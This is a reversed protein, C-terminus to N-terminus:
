GVRRQFRRVGAAPTDQGGDQGGGQDGEAQGEDDDSFLDGFNRRLWKEAKAVAGPGTFRVSKDGDQIDVADVGPEDAEAELAALEAELAKRREDKSAM